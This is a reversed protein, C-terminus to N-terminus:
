NCQETSIKSVMESSYQKYSFVDLLISFALFRSETEEEKRESLKTPHNRPFLFIGCVNPIDFLEPYLM